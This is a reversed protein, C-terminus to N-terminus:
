IFYILLTLNIKIMYKLNVTAERISGRNKAKVEVSEIGPMPVLGFDFSNSSRATVNYKGSEQNLLTSRTQLSEGVRRATGGFLIFQQALTTNSLTSRLKESALRESTIKVGSALKVWATRSNLYTIQEPTRSGNAGSGHAKQRVDIQKAVYDPIPEGVIDAM